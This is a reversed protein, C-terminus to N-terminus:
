EFDFVSIVLRDFLANYASVLGTLRSFHAASYEYRPTQPDKRYSHQHGRKIQIILM